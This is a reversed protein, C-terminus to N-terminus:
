FIRNQCSRDKATNNRHILKLGDAIEHMKIVLDDNWQYFHAMVEQFVNGWFFGVFLSFPWDLL